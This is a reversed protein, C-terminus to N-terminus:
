TLPDFGNGVEVGDGFGDGDTDPNTPDTGYDFLEEGDKLGDGDSDEDTDSTGRYEEEDADVGDFDRDGPSTLAFCTDFFREDTIQQCVDPDQKSQAQAMIAGSICALESISNDDCNGAIIQNFIWDQECDYRVTENVFKSCSKISSSDITTALLADDCDFQIEKDKVLSCIKPDNSALAAAVYCDDALENKLESCYKENGSDQALRLAINELCKEANESEECKTIAGNVTLEMVTDEVKKASRNQLLSRVVVVSVVIVVLLIVLSVAPAVWRNPNKNSPQNTPNVDVWEVQNLQENQNVM